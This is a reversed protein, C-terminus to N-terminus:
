GFVLGLDANSGTQLRVPSLGHDLRSISEPDLRLNLRDLGLPRLFDHLKDLFGLYVKDQFSVFSCGSLFNLLFVSKCVFKISM